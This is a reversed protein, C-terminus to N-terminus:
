NFCDICWEDQATVLDIALVRIGDIGVPRQTWEPLQMTTM